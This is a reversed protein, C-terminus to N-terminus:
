ETICFTRWLSSRSLVAVCKCSDLHVTSDSPGGALGKRWNLEGNVYSMAIITFLLLGFLCLTETMVWTNM